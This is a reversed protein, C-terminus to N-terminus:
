DGAFTLTLLVDGLSGGFSVSGLTGSPGIGAGPTPTSVVLPYTIPIAYVKTASAIAIVVLMVCFYKMSLAKMIEETLSRQQGALRVWKSLCKCSVLRRTQDPANTYASAFCM